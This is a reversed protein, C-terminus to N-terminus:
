IVWYTEHAAVSSQTCNLRLPSFLPLICELSLAWSLESETLARDRLCPCTARIYWCAIQSHSLVLYSLGLCLSLACLEREWTCTDYFQVLSLPFTLYDSPYLGQSVWHCSNVCQVLCRSVSYTAKYEPLPFSQVNPFSCLGFPVMDFSILWFFVSHCINIFEMYNTLWRSSLM